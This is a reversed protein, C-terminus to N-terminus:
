TLEDTLEELLQLVADMDFPKELYASAGMSMVRQRLDAQGQATMMVVPPHKPQAVIKKLATVGDLRPMKVDLFVLDVRREQMIEIVEEGSAAEMLEYKDKSLVEALIRRVGPQDDAVVILKKAL